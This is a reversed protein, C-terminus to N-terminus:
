REVGRVPVLQLRRDRVQQLVRSMRDLVHPHPVDVRQQCPLCRLRPSTRGGTPPRLTIVEPSAGSMITGAGGHPRSPTAGGVPDPLASFPRPRRTNKPWT